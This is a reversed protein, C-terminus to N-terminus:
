IGAKLEQKSTLVLVIFFLIILWEFSTSLLINQPESLNRFNALRSKIMLIM